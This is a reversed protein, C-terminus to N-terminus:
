IEDEEEEDGGGAERGHPGPRAPSDAKDPSSRGSGSSQKQSPSGGLAADPTVFSTSDCAVLWLLKSIASRPVLSEVTVSSGSADGQPSLFIGYLLKSVKMIVEHTSTASPQVTQPAPISGESGEFADDSSFNPLSIMFYSVPITEAPEEMAAELWDVLGDFHHLVVASMPLLSLAVYLSPLIHVAGEGTLLM